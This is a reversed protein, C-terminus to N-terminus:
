CDKREDDAWFCSYDAQELGEQPTDLAAVRLLFLDFVVPISVPVAALPTLTPQNFLEAGIPDSENFIGRPSRAVLEVPHISRKGM